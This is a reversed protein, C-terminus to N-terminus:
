KHGNRQLVFNEQDRSFLKDHLKDLGFDVADNRVSLKCGIPLLQIVRGERPM